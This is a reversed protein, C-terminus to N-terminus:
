GSPQPSTLDAGLPDDTIQLYQHVLQIATSGEGVAAAVRKISGHRVDGAAFVGPMSTELLMPPRQLLWPPSAQGTTLLDQGTLVYGHTDRAVSGELWGTRPEAGILLFLASAAVVDTSADDRSRLTLSELRGAGSGDVVETGLRVHINPAHEIESVLYESMTARLSAGRVLMTVSAAYRSLHMAAQGASNGAGVVFVDRGQMARAEAGAAGYFVGAGVMADLAPVELRRWTVGCAIVVARATVETGDGTTVRKMQGRAELRLAAQSLVFRTGFLWAQEVARNTLDDGSIGRQFGLYNRIMSSTGAQGGPVAPELVLTELGESAAYVASALGAPGAGIVLLDCSDVDVQTRMGLTGWVEPPAPDILVTGDYFVLVPLRAPSVGVEALVHRGEASDPEYFWYPLGARSLTDRLDHSRASSGVGVIRVPVVAADQSKDWAALFEGVAPYLVRELPAWPNFLHYDVQGLAMASVVPHAASWDGRDVLLVRKAMPAVERVRALVEAAPLAVMSQDAIVLAVRGGGSHVQAAMAVVTEGSAASTVRYDTGFRRHLDAVLADSVGENETVVLIVPQDVM